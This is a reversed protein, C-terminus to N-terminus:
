QLFETGVHLLFSIQKHKYVGTKRLPFDPDYKAIIAAPPPPIKYPHSSPMSGAPLSEGSSSKVVGRCLWFCKDSFQNRTSFICRFFEGIEIHHRHHRHCDM